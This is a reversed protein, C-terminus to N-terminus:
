GCSGSEGKREPRELVLRTREGSKDRRCLVSRVPCGEFRGAGPIEVSAIANRGPWWLGACTVTLLFSEREGRDVLEKPALGSQASLYRRRRVDGSGRYLTDYGGRCSQQWVQGIRKCPLFSIEASIVDKLEVAEPPGGGCQVRGEEDVFPSVGLYGQCFRHLVTWSSEGKEATLEGRKRSRDGEGLSLGLPLLLREELYDLSLTKLVGPPAENDLLVAEGSRCVLEASLGRASLSTNQEDVLGRFLVTGNEFLEVERLEEWLRDAPFRARLLDAPADRDRSLAAEAPEGLLLRDGGRTIGWFTM